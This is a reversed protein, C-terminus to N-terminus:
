ILNYNKKDSSNEKICYELQCCSYLHTAIVNFIKTIDFFTFVNLIILLLIDYSYRIKSLPHNGLIAATM